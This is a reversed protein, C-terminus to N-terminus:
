AENSDMVGVDKSFVFLVGGKSNRLVIRTGVPSSKGRAAGDMNFKFDYPTSVSFRFEKDLLAM